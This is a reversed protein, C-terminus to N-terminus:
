KGGFRPGTDFDVPLYSGISVSGTQIQVYDLLGFTISNPSGIIIDGLDSLSIVGSFIEM